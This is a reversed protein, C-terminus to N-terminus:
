CALYRTVDVIKLLTQSYHIESISTGVIINTCASNRQVCFKVVALVLLLVVLDQVSSLAVNLQGSIQLRTCPLM